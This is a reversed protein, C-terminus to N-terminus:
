KKQKKMEIYLCRINQIRLYNNRAKTDEINMMMSFKAEMISYMQDFDEFKLLEVMTM